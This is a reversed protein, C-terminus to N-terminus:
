IGLAMKDRKIARIGKPRRKTFEAKDWFSFERENSFLHNYYVTLCELDWVMESYQERSLDKCHCYDWKKYFEMAAEFGVFVEKQGQGCREWDSKPQNFVNAQTSFHPYRNGGCYYYQVEFVIKKTLQFVYYFVPKQADTVRGLNVM